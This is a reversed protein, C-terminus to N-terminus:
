RYTILFEPLAEHPNYIDPGLCRSPSVRLSSTLQLAEFLHSLAARLPLGVSWCGADSARDNGDDDTRAARPSRRAPSLAAGSSLRHTCLGGGGNVGASVPISLGREVGARASVMTRSSVSQM